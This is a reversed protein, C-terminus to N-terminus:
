PAGICYLDRDGRLLLCDGDPMPSAGSGSYLYNHAIQKYQTDPLLVLTEGGDNALFLYRGVLTLSPYLNAPETGPKGSASGIEPEHEILIEGTKADLAYLM